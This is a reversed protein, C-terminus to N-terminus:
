LTLRVVKVTDELGICSLFLEVISHSLLDDSTLHVTSVLKDLDCLAQTPWGSKWQSAM